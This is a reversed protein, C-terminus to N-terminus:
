SLVVAYSETESGLVMVKKLQVGVAMKYLPNSGEDKFDRKCYVVVVPTDSNGKPDEAILQLSTILDQINM